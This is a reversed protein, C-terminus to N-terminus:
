QILGEIRVILNHLKVLPVRREGKAAAYWAQLQELDAAAIRPHRRLYDWGARGPTRALMSEVMRRAALPNGVVRALFGGTARVLDAERPAAV